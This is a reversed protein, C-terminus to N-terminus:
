LNIKVQVGHGACDKMVAHIPILETRKLPVFELQWLIEWLTELQVLQKNRVVRHM